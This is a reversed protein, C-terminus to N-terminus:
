RRHRGLLAAKERRAVAALAHDGHRAIFLDYAQATRAKRAADLEEQVAVNPDRPRPLNTTHRPSGTVDAAHSGTAMSTLVFLASKLLMTKSADDCGLTAGNFFTSM